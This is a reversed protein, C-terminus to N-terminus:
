VCQPCGLIAANILSASGCPSESTCQVRPLGYKDKLEELDKTDREEPFKWLLQACEKTSCYSLATRGNSDRLGKELPALVQVCEPHSNSAAYMVATWGDSDKMGKEKEALIRVIDEYGYMAAIM